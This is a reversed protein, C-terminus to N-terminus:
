ENEKSLKYYSIFELVTLNNPNLSFGIVKSIKATLTYVSVKNQKKNEEKYFTELVNQQSKLVHDLFKYIQELDSFCNIKKNNPYLLKINEVLGAKAWEQEKITPVKVVVFFSNM